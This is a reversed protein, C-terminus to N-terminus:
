GHALAQEGHSREFAAPNSELIAAYDELQELVRQRSAQCRQTRLDAAWAREDPFDGYCNRCLRLAWCARCDELSRDCYERVLQMVADDDIGNVDVNGFSQISGVRECLHINGNVAVLMKRTLPACCGNSHIHSGLEVQPRLALAQLVRVGARVLSPSRTAEDGTLAERLLGRWEKHIDGSFDGYRAAFRSPAAVAQYTTRQGRLLEHRDFFDAVSKLDAGPTLVCHFQVRKRYYEADADRLRHLGDLITALTGAGRRNIRHRDHVLAPGDISVVLIVDNAIIFRAADHGLRTGNTTFQYRVRRTPYVRAIHRIVKKITPLALLPEGGWFSVSLAEVDASRQMMLSIANRATNWHMQRPVSRDPPSRVYPCYHCQLNCSETLELTVHEIQRSLVSRLSEEEDYLRMAKVDCPALFGKSLGAEIEGAVVDSAIGQPVAGDNPRSALYDDLVNWVEGSVRLIQNTSADYVYFNSRTKFRVYLRRPMSTPTM